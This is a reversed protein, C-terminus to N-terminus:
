EEHTTTVFDGSGVHLRDDIRKDAAGVDKPPCNMVTQQRVATMKATSDAKRLRLGATKPSSPMHSNLLGGRLYRCSLYLNSGVSLHSSCTCFDETRKLLPPEPDNTEPSPSTM